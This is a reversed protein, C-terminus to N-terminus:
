ARRAPVIRDGEVLGNVDYGLRGGVSKGARPSAYASPAAVLVLHLPACLEALPGALAADLAQRREAAKSWSPLAVAVEGILAKEEIRLRPVLSPAEEQDDPPM